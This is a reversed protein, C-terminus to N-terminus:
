TLQWRHVKRYKNTLMKEALTRKQKPSLSKVNRSMNYLEQIDGTQFLFLRNRIQQSTNIKTTKDIPFLVFSEFLFCLKWLVERKHLHPIFPKEKPEETSKIISNILQHYTLKISNKINANTKHWINQRFPPPTIKLNHLWILSTNWQPDTNPPSPIYKKLITINNSTSDRTTHHRLIHRNLFGPNKFIKKFNCLKCPHLTSKKWWENDIKHLSTSHAITIHERITTPTNCSTKCGKFPCNITSLNQVSM